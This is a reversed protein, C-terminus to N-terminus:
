ISLRKGVLPFSRPARPYREFCSFDSLHRCGSTQRLHHPPSYFNGIWRWLYCRFSSLCSHIEFLIIYSSSGRINLLPTKHNEFTWSYPDTDLYRNLRILSWLSGSPHGHPLTPQRRLSAAIELVGVSPILVQCLFTCSHLGIQYYMPWLAVETHQRSQGSDQHYPCCAGQCSNLVAPLIDSTSSVVPLLIPCPCRCRSSPLCRYTDLANSIKNKYRWPMSKANEHIWIISNKILGLEIKTLWEKNRSWLFNQFRFHYSWLINSWGEYTSISKQSSALGRM